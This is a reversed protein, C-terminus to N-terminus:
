LENTVVPHFPPWRDSSKGKAWCRGLGYRIPATQTERNNGYITEPNVQSQRVNVLYKGTQRWVLDPDPGPCVQFGQILGRIIWGNRRSQNPWGHYEEWRFKLPWCRGWIRKEVARLRLVKTNAMRSATGTYIGVQNKVESWNKADLNRTSFGSGRTGRM